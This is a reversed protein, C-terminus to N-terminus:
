TDEFPGWLGKIDDTDCTDLPSLYQGIIKFVVMVSM